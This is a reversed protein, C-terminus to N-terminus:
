PALRFEAADVRSRKGNRSVTTAIPVSSFDFRRIYSVMKAINNDVLVRVFSISLWCYPRRHPPRSHTRVAIAHLPSRPEVANVPTATVATGVWRARSTTHYSGSCTTDLTVSPGAMQVDNNAAATRTVIPNRAAGCQTRCRQCM